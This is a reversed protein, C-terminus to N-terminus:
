HVADLLLAGARLADCVSQALERDPHRIRVDHGLQYFGDGIGLDARADYFVDKVKGDQEPLDMRHCRNCNDMMGGSARQGAQRDENRVAEAAALARESSDLALEAFTTAKEGLLPSLADTLEALAAYEASMM